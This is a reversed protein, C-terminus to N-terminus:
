MQCMLHSKCFVLLLFSLPFPLDFYLLSFSSRFLLSPLCSFRTLAWDKRKSNPLGWSEMGLHHPWYGAERELVLVQKRAKRKKREVMEWDKKLEQERPHRGQDESKDRPDAGCQERKV